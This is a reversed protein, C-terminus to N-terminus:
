IGVSDTNQLMTHENVGGGVGRQEKERIALSVKM